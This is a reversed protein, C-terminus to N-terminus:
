LGSARYIAAVQDPTADDPISAMLAEVASVTLANGEAAQQFANFQDQVQQPVTPPAPTEAKPTVGVIDANDALWKDVASEDAPDVGDSTIFRALKPNVAKATLVDTLKRSNLDKTLQAQAAEAAKARKLAEELQKRLASGSQDDDYDQEDSV